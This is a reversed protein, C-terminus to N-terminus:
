SKLIRLATSATLAACFIRSNALIRACKPASFPLVTATQPSANLGRVSSM